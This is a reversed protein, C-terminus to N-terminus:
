QHAQEKELAQRITQVLAAYKSRYTEHLRQEARSLFRYAGKLAQAAQQELLAYHALFGQATGDPVEQARRVETNKDSLTHMTCSYEDARIALRSAIRLNRELSMTLLLQRLDERECNHTRQLHRVIARRQKRTGYGEIEEPSTPCHRIREPLLNDLIQRELDEISVRGFNELLTLCKSPALRIDNDEFDFRALAGAPRNPRADTILWNEPNSGGANFAYLCPPANRCMDDVDNALSQSVEWDINVDYRQVFRWCTDIVRAGILGMSASKPIHRADPADKVFNGLKTQLHATARLVHGLCAEQEARSIGTSLYDRLSRGEITEMRLAIGRDGGDLFQVWSPVALEDGEAFVRADKDRTLYQLIRYEHAALERQEPAYLKVHSSKGDYKNPLGRYVTHRQGVLSVEEYGARPEASFQPKQAVLLSCLVRWAQAAQSRDHYIDILRDCSDVYVSPQDTITHSAVTSEPSQVISELLHVAADTGAAKDDDLLMMCALLHRDAQLTSSKLVHFLPQTARPRTRFAKQLYTFVSTKDAIHRGLEYRYDARMPALLVAELLSAAAESHEGTELHHKAQLYHYDATGEPVAKGLLAPNTLRAQVAGLELSEPHPDLDSTYKPLGFLARRLIHRARNHEADDRGKYHLTIHPLQQTEDVHLQYTRPAQDFLDGQCVAIAIDAKEGSTVIAYGAEKFRLEVAARLTRGHLDDSSSILVRM